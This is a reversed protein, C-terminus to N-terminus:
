GGWGGYFRRQGAAWLVAFHTPDAVTLSGDGDIDATPPCPIAIRRYYVGTVGAADVKTYVAHVFCQSAALMHYENQAIGIDLLSPVAFTSKFDPANALSSGPNWRAYGIAVPAASTPSSPVEMSAFMLNIGGNDDICISPQFQHCPVPTDTLALSSDMLRFRQDLPFTRGGNTSRAIFIDVNTNHTQDNYVSGVFAVYVHGPHTSL